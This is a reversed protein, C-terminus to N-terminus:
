INLVKFAKLTNFLLFSIISYYKSINSSLRTIITYMLGEIKTFVGKYVKAKVIAILDRTYM